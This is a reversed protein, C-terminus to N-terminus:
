NREDGLFGPGLALPSSSSEQEHPFSRFMTDIRSQIPPTTFSDVCADPCFDAARRSIAGASEANSSAPQVVKSLTEVVCTLRGSGGFAESLAGAVCRSCWRM